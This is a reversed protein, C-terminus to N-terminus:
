LNDAEADKMLRAVNTATLKIMKHNADVMKQLSQFLQFNNEVVEALETLREIQTTNAQIESALRRDTHIMAEFSETTEHMGEGVTKFLRQNGVAMRELESLRQKIELLEEKVSQESDPTKSGGWSSALLGCLLLLLLLGTRNKM